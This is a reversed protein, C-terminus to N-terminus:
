SLAGTIGLYLLPTGVIMGILGAIRGVGDNDKNTLATLGGFTFIGDMVVAAPVAVGSLQAGQLLTQFIEYPNPMEVELNELGVNRIIM